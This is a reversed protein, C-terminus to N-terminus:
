FMEKIFRNEGDLSRHRRHVMMFINDEAVGVIDTGVQISKDSLDKKGSGGEGYMKNLMKKMQEALANKKKKKQAGGTATSALPRSPGASSSGGSFQATKAGDMDGLEKLEGDEDFPNGTSLQNLLAKNDKNVQAMMKKMKNKTAPTPRYKKPFKKWDDENQPIKRDLLDQPFGPLGGPWADTVDRYTSSGTFADTEDKPTFKKIDSPDNENPDNGSGGSSSFQAKLEEPSPCPASGCLYLHPDQPVGPPDKPPCGEEEACLTQEIDGLEKAKKVMSVTQWAAAAAAAVAVPCQWCGGTCGCAVYAWASFAATGAGGIAAYIGMDRAKKGVEELPSSSGGNTSEGATRDLEAMGQEATNVREQQHDVERKLASCHENDCFDDTCNDGNSQQCNSKCRSRCQELATKRGELTQNHRNIIEQQQAKSDEITASQASVGKGSANDYNTKQTKCQIEDCKKPSCDGNPDDRRCSSQCRHRCNDLDSKLRAMSEEAIRTAHATERELDPSLAWLPSGACVMSLLFIGIFTKKGM